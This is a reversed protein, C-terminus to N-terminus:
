AGTIKSLLNVLVGEGMRRVVRVAPHPPQRLQPLYVYCGTKFTFHQALFYLEAAIAEEDIGTGHLRVFRELALAAIAEGLVETQRQRDGQWYVRIWGEDGSDEGASFPLLLTGDQLSRACWSNEHHEGFYLPMLNAIFGVIASSKNGM